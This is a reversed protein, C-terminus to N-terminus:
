RGSPTSVMSGKDPLDLFWDIELDKVNSTDIQRLPSFRQESLTRGFALWNEGQSTDSLAADDISRTDSGGCAALVFVSAILTKSPLFQVPM